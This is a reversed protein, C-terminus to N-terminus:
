QGQDHPVTVVTSCSGVNGISDAVSVNIAYQRGNKNGGDRSAVLPVSFSYTGDSQITITSSPQVQGQNDNVTFAASEAVLTQTGPTITGSVEVSVSKENPPWLRTPNATCTLGPGVQPIDNISTITIGGTGGPDVSPAPLPSSTSPIGGTTHNYTDTWSWKYLPRTGDDSIGVLTTTFGMFPKASATQGGCFAVNDSSTAGPLCPNSPADFFSLRKDDLTVLLIAAGGLRLNTSGSPTQEENIVLDKPYYFPFPDYNSGNPILDFYTYGGDPPDLFTIPASATLSKHDTCFNQSGLGLAPNKKPVFPSPCPLAIVEQQWEFGKFSCAAIADKLTMAGQSAFFANMSTAHGDQSFPPGAFHKVCGISSPTTSIGNADCADVQCGAAGIRVNAIATNEIEGGNALWHIRGIPVNSTVGFFGLTNPAQSLVFTGVQVDKTDFVSVIPPAFRNTYTDFGVATPPPGAFTIDFNENGNQALVNSVPHPNMEPNPDSPVVIALDGTSGPSISFIVGGDTFPSPQSGEAFSAFTAKIETTSAMTFTSLDNYSNVQASGPWAVALCVVALLARIQM